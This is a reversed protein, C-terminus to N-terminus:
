QVRKAVRKCPTNVNLNRILILIAFVMPLLGLSKVFSLYAGLILLVIRFTFSVAKTAKEYRRPAVRKLLCSLARGGDLPYIPLLNIILQILACFGLVPAKSIMLALLFSGLPGALACLIEQRNNTIEANMVVGDATIRVSRVRGGTAIIAIYHFLEHVLM